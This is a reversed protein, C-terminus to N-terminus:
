KAKLASKRYFYLLTILSLLLLMAVIQHLQAMWEFLGFGNRTPHMANLVSLIGLTVQLLGLISPFLAMKRFLSTVGTLRYSKVSLWVILILLISALSRHIFHISIPHQVPNSSFVAAPLFDGNIRPWTPAINAAKLGAMFAGYTLQIGLIVIVAITLTRLSHHQVRDEDKIMLSLAFWLNFGILVLASIFHIALRIHSVYLNEDNLGSAVMIWGILGQAIGLLFLGILKPVMDRSIMRKYLFWAFPILFVVSILRAWNRHMWEWFYIFKFDSMSFDQNLYKFQAIQQYKQFSTQWDQENMPPLAGLIPKWETISLGSGTLRTIGGLLVQIILMAVGLLLWLGIIQRNKEAM